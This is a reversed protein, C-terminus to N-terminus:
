GSNSTFRVDVPFRAYGFAVHIVWLLFGRQAKDGLERYSLDFDKLAAEL